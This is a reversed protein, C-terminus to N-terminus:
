TRIAVSGKDGRRPRSRKLQNAFKQGFKLCWQRIAENSVLVGRAALMEEIDRFSLSFRHYLWIAHSIISSPFRHRFYLDTNM